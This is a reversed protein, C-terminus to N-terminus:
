TNLVFQAHIDTTGLREQEVLSPQISFRHSKLTKLQAKEIM